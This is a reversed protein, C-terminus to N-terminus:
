SITGNKSALPKATEAAQMVLDSVAVPEVNLDLRGAEIKSIDLVDSILELLHRASKQIRHLDPIIFEVGNDPAEEELLESYGIIANLPTRLEHSMNALFASKARNSEEAAVKANMLDQEVAKREAIENQLERTREEVKHELDDQAHQLAVDRSHIQEMMGNFRGILTGVEDDSYREARLAYDGASVKAAVETLHLITRFDAGAVQIFAGAFGARLLANRGCRHRRQVAPPRVNGFPGVGLYLMGVRDSGLM